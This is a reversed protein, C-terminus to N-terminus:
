DDETRVLKDASPRCIPHLLVANAPQYPRALNDSFIFKTDISGCLERMTGLALYPVANNAGHFVVFPLAGPQFQTNLSGLKAILDAVAAEPHRFGWCRLVLAEAISNMGIDGWPCSTIWPFYNVAVLHFSGPALFKDFARNACPINLKKLVLELRKWMGTQRWTGSNLMAGPSDAYFQGYNIGAAVAVPLDRGVTQEDLVAGVALAKGSVPHILEEPFSDLSTATGCHCSREVPGTCYNRAGSDPYDEDAEICLREELSQFQERNWEKIIEQLKDFKM